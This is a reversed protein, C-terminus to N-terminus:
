CKGKNQTDAFLDDFIDHKKNNKNTSDQISEIKSVVAIKSATSTNSSIGTFLDDEEFINVQVKTSSTSETHFDNGIDNAGFLKGAIPRSHSTADVDDLTSDFLKPKEPTVTPKGPLVEPKKNGLINIENASMSQSIKSEEEAPTPKESPKSKTQKQRNSLIDNINQGGFLDASAFVSVGGVPKQLLFM